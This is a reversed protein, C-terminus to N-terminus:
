SLTRVELVRPEGDPGMTLKLTRLATRPARQALVAELGEATRVFREIATTDRGLRIIFAGTDPRQAAVGGTSLLLTIFFVAIMQGRTRAPNRMSGRLENPQITRFM